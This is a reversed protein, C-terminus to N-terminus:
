APVAEVISVSSNTPIVRRLKFNAKDLLACYEPETREQGTTLALMTIDLM